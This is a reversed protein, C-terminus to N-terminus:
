NCNNLIHFTHLVRQWYKVILLVVVIEIQYIINRFKNFYFIRYLLSYFFFLRSRSVFAFAYGNKRNFISSNKKCKGASSSDIACALLIM